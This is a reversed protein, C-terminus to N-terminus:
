EEQRDDHVDTEAEIVEGDHADDRAVDVADDSSVAESANEVVEEAPEQSVDSEDAHDSDNQEVVDVTEDMKNADNTMDPTTARNKRHRLLRRLGFAAAASLAIMSVSAIAKYLVRM